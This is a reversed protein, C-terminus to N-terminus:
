PSFVLEENELYAVGNVAKRLEGTDLYDKCLEYFTEEGEGVVLMDAGNKLYNEANYRIEPGGLIIKCKHLDPHQKIFSILQLVSIKTMLNTYFGILQPRTRLLNEKFLEPTSFTSDFVQHLVNKSELYASLYLLGLPVYPKMILKEKEDEELFYGHTLLIMNKDLM